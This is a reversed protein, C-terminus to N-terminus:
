PVSVDGGDYSCSPTNNIDECWGNGQWEEICDTDESTV